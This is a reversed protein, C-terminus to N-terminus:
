KHLIQLQHEFKGILFRHKTHQNSYSNDQKQPYDNMVKVYSRKRCWDNVLVNRQNEDSHYLRENNENRYVTIIMGAVLLPFRQIHLNSVVQNFDTSLAKVHFNHPHLNVSETFQFSPEQNVLIVKRRDDNRFSTQGLLFNGPEPRNH